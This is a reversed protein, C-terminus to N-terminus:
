PFRQMSGRRSDVISFSGDSSHNTPALPQRTKRARQDRLQGCTASQAHLRLIQRKKSWGFVLPWRQERARSM